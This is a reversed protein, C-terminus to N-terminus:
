GHLSTSASISANAHLRDAQLRDSDEGCRFSQLIIRTLHGGVVLLVLFLLLNRADYAVLRGAGILVLAVCLLIIAACFAEVKSSWRGTWQGTIQNM